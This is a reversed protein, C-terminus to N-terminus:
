ILITNIPQLQRPDLREYEYGAKSNVRQMVFHAAMYRVAIVTILIVLFRFWEHEKYKKFEGFGSKGPNTNASM